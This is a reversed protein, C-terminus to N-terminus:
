TEPTSLHGIDAVAILDYGDSNKRLTTIACESINIYYAESHKDKVLPLDNRDFTNHLVDGIAGGHSVILINGGPHELVAEEVVALMRNGVDRASYGRNCVYDRDIDTRIWEELFQKWTEGERDWDMRERLRDDTRFTSGMQEAVLQATEQTRKAPSAWVASINKEKLYVGTKRAQQRGLETLPPDGWNSEKQGHRIFYITEM